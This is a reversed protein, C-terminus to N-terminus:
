ENLNKDITAKFVKITVFTPITFLTIFNQHLKPIYFESKSVIRKMKLVWIILFVEFWKMWLTESRGVILNDLSSTIIKPQWLYISEGKLSPDVVDKYYILKIKRWLEKNCWLNENFKLAIINKINNMNRNKLEWHNIWPKAKKDLRKMPIQLNQELNWTIKPLRKHDM